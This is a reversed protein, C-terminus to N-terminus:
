ESPLNTSDTWHLTPGRYVAIQDLLQLAELLTSTDKFGRFKIQASERTSMGADVVWASGRYSYMPMSKGPDGPIFFHAGCHETGSQDMNVDPDITSVGYRTNLV